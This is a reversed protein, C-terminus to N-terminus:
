LNVEGEVHAGRHNRVENMVKGISMPTGLAGCVSCNVLYGGNGLEPAVSVQEPLEPVEMPETPEEAGFMEVPLGSLEALEERAQERASRGREPKGAMEVLQEWKRVGGPQSTIRDRATDILELFFADDSTAPEPSTVFAHVLPSGEEYELMRQRQRAFQRARERLINRAFGNVWAGLSVRGVEEFQPLKRLVQDALDSMVESVAHPDGVAKAVMREQGTIAESVVDHGTAEIAARIEDDTYPAERM